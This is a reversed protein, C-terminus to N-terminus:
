RRLRNLLKGLSAPLKWATIVRQHWPGLRLPNHLHHPLHGAGSGYSFASDGQYFRPSFSSSNPRANIERENVFPLKASCWITGNYIRRRTTTNGGVVTLKEEPCRSVFLAPGLCHCPSFMRFTVRIVVVLELRANEQTGSRGKGQMSIEILTSPELCRWSLSEVDIVCWTCYVFEVLCLIKGLAFTCRRLELPLVYPLCRLNPMESPQRACM